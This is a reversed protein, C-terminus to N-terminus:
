CSRVPFRCLQVRRLSGHVVAPCYYFVSFDRSSAIRIDIDEILSSPRRFVLAHVELFSSSGIPRLCVLTSDVIIYILPTTEKRGQKKTRGLQHLGICGHHLEDILEGLRHGSIRSRSLERRGRTSSSSALGLVRSRGVIGERSARRVGLVLSRRPRELNKSFGQLRSSNCM